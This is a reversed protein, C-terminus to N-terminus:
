GPYKQELESKAKPWEIALVAPSTNLKCGPVNVVLGILLDLYKKRTELGGLTKTGCLLTSNDCGPFFREAAEILAWEAKIKLHEAVLAPCYGKAADEFGNALHIAQMKAHYSAFSGDDMHWTDGPETVRFQEGQDRPKRGYYNQDALVKRAIADVRERELEAVATAMLLVKVQPALAKAIDHAKSATTM